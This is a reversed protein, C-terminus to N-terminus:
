AVALDIGQDTAWTALLGASEIAGEDLLSLYHDRLIDRASEIAWGGWTAIRELSVKAAWLRTVCTDRTDQLRKLLFSSPVAGAKVAAARADRFRNGISDSTHLRGARHDWMLPPDNFHRVPNAALERRRRDVRRTVPALLGPLAEQARRKTKEPVYRWTQGELDSLSALCVDVQRAGTWLCVTVCDAVDAYGNADCWSVFDAEEQVTWFVRRGPTADRGLKTAPNDTIWAPDQWTAWTFFAGAAGVAQNATAISVERQLDLYWQRMKPRTITEVRDAGFRATLKRSQTLYARQTGRSIRSLAQADAFFGDVMAQVTRPGRSLAETVGPERNELVARGREILDAVLTRKHRGAADVPVPPLRDLAARLTSRAKGGADDDRMAARVISAWATRADASTMAGGRDMWNGDADKLDLGGFGCARNAPSPEWRPRGDRWKLGNRLNAPAAPKRTM